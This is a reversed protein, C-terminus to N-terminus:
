DKSKRRLTTHKSFSCCIVIEYDKTQGSRPEFGRDVANSALVSVMEGGIPNILNSNIKLSLMYIIFYTGYENCLFM